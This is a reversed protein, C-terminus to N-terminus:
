PVHMPVVSGVEREQHSVYQNGGKADEKEGIDDTNKKEFQPFGSLLDESEGAQLLIVAGVLDLIVVLTDVKEVSTPSQRENGLVGIQEVNFRCVVVCVDM